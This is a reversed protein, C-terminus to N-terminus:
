SIALCFNFATNPHVVSHTTTVILVLTIMTGRRLFAQSNFVSILVNAREPVCLFVMIPNVYIKRRLNGYASSIGQVSHDLTDLELSNELTLEIFQLVSHILRM